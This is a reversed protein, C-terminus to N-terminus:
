NPKEAGPLTMGIKYIAKQNYIKLSDTEATRIILNKEPIESSTM